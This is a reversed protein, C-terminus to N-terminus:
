ACTCLYTLHTQDTTIKATGPQFGASDVLNELQRRDREILKWNAMTELWPAFPNHQAINTFIIRGGPKLRARALRLLLGIARDDLYDFLGGFIIRDYSDHTRRLLRLADGKETRLDDVFSLRKRSLALAGEDIDILHCTVDSRGYGELAALDRSGGCGVSLIRANRPLERVANEIQFAIKNRHQYAIASNLAYWDIWYAPHGEPLSTTGDLLREVTEFDGPYGRPWEQLRRVFPAERHVAHARSLSDRLEVEILVSSFKAIRASLLHMASIVSHMKLADAAPLRTAEILIDTADEIQTRADSPAQIEGLPRWSSRPLPRELANM